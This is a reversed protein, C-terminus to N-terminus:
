AVEGTCSGTTTTTTTTAALFHSSGTCKLHFLHGLFSVARRM